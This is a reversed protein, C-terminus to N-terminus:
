RPSGPRMIERTDSNANEDSRPGPRPMEPPYRARVCKELGIRIRLARNRLTNLSVGLREALSQRRAIRAAGADPAYYELILAASDAGISELCARLAPMAPDPEAEQLNLEMQMMAERAADREKRQRTGTELVLLRAIGLAYGALNAIPVGDDLRRGLRDIAEDALTEADTPFRLRFYTVLRLRLQEYAPALDGAAALRQLLNHLPAARAAAVEETGIDGGANTM